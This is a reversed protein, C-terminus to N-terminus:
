SRNRFCLLGSRIVHAHLAQAPDRYTRLLPMMSKHRSSNLFERQYSTVSYNTKRGSMNIATLVGPIRSNNTHTVVQALGNNYLRKPMFMSIRWDLGAHHHYMGSAPPVISNVNPPQNIKLYLLLTLRNMIKDLWPQRNRRRRKRTDNCWM